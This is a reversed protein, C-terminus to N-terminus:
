NVHSGGRGATKSIQVGSKISPPLSIGGHREVYIGICECIVELLIREERLFAGEEAAPKECLYGVVALGCKKGGAVIDRRQSWPTETCKETQFRRGLVELQAYANDPYQWAQPLMEVIRQMRQDFNLESERLTALTKMICTLEKDREGLLRTRKKLAHELWEV